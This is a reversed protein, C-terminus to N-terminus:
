STWLRPLRAPLGLARSRLAIIGAAVARRLAMATGLWRGLLLGPQPLTIGGTAGHELDGERLPDRLGEAAPGAFLLTGLAGAGAFGFPAALRSGIEGDLAMGDAWILAGERRLRWSDRLAGATLREGHAARGFVLIEAMLLRAGAALDVGIHREMRAGDFLITEQPLWELAGDAEVSLRTAIRTPPGLSRYLKEAAAASVTARAGRGASIAIELSDGGALGGATNVLAAIPAEDPEPDPFLARLPAAQFLTGIATGRPTARFGLELRGQARQHPIPQPRSM